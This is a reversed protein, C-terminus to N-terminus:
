SLPLPAYEVPVGQARIRLSQAGAAAVELARLGDQQDVVFPEGRRCQDLYSALEAKYAPGFREIFVPVPNGLPGREGYDRLAFSRREIVRRRGYIEFSVQLPEGQFHGVHILGQDGYIWTENRYGAVHNRSVVVQAVLDGPFWMQLFADDLDERVSSIKQNYLVAGLGSVAEPCCDVLWIAEDINHVAMDLLLGPSNYGEPPPLPDELVSVIKFPKGITGGTLREKARQLPADFRRMFALMLSNRRKEEGHLYACFERATALSHTLPKELLVRHGADILAKADAYHHETRSAIVAGDILGAALLQAVSKFARIPESQGKQLQQAVREALDAYSDVVAVLACDERERALEQVHLAHFIGIRGVGVVALRFRDKM